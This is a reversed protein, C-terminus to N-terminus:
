TSRLMPWRASSRPPTTRSESRREELVVDREPLVVEDTLVLNAMRDAELGMVLELRDAAVTQFFATYDETTFANEAGGNRAVLRSFEGVPTTPTGKFM